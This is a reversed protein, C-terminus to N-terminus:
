TPSKQFRIRAESERQKELESSLGKGTLTTEVRSIQLGDISVVDVISAGKNGKDYLDKLFTDIVTIDDM